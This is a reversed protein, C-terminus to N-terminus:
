EAGLFDIDQGPELTIYAKKTDSRRGLRQGFRKAKGKVNVVNVKAVKVEFMLEVAQKIDIKDADTRVQFAFQQNKDAAMTTKESVIPSLLVKMLREQKM